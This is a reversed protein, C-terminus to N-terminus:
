AHPICRHQRRYPEFAEADSALRRLVQGVTNNEQFTFAEAFMLGGATGDDYSVLRRVDAADQEDMGALIAEADEDSLEGIVDAQVDSDLEDIIDVATGVSLREVLEVAVENPAENILEAARDAHLM